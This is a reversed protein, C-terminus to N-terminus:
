IISKYSNRSKETFDTRYKPPFLRFVCFFSFNQFFNKKETNQIEHKGM